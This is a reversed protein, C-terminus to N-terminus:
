SCNPCKTWFTIVECQTERLAINEQFDILESQLSAATAWPFIQQAGDTAVTVVKKVDIGKENLM